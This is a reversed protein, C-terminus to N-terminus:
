SASRPQSKQFWSVVSPANMWAGLKAIKTKLMTTDSHFPLGAPSSGHSAQVSSHAVVEGGGDYLKSDIGTTWLRRGSHSRFCGSSGSQFYSHAPPGRRSGVRTRWQRAHTPLSAGDRGGIVASVFRLVAWHPM